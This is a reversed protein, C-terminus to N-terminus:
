RFFDLFKGAFISGEHELSIRFKEAFDWSKGTQEDTGPFDPQKEVAFRYFQSKAFLSM